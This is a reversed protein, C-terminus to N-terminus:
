APLCGVISRTNKQMKTQTGKSVQLFWNRTHIARPHILRQTQQLHKLKYDCTLWVARNLNQQSERRLAELESTNGRGPELSDALFIICSLPGMEPQGLTHNSIAQLISKDQIGFRDRAVVASAGAHLLHPNTQDVPDLLWGEARAIKLLKQPKFCKALDHMLGAQGAQERNLDHKQALEMATQEVSLIHKIRATPVNKALWDLVQERM